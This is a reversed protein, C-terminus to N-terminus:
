PESSFGQRWFYRPVTVPDILLEIVVEERDSGIPTTSDILYDVDEEMLDWDELDISNEYFTFVDDADTRMTFRLFPTGEVITTEAIATPDPAALPDVGAAYDAYNSQGNGNDDADPDLVGNELAFTAYYEYAGVDVTGANIRANGELDFPFSSGFNSGADRLSSGAQLRLDGYDNGSFETWEGDSGPDPVSRFGATPYGTASASADYFWNTGIQPGSGVIEFWQDNPASVISSPRHITNAVFLCNSVENPSMGFVAGGRVAVGASAVDREHLDIVQNFAFTINEFQAIITGDSFIAAGHTEEPKESRESFIGGVAGSGGADGAAGDGNFELNGVVVNSVFASNEIELNLVQSECHIAGGTSRGADPTSGGADGGNGGIGAEGYVGEDGIGGGDGQRGGWGGSGWRGGAGVRSFNGEFLVASLILSSDSQQYIAGGEAAGRNGRAGGDGGRGGNGGDGGNPHFFTGHGGDGGRGGRGGQGGSGADGGEASNELFHSNRAVVTSAFDVFIAGGKASGGDGGTSGTGGDTGATGAGAPTLLGASAGDVGNAGDSGSLGTVGTGGIAGNQIFDCGAIVPSSAECFIAGGAGRGAVTPVPGAALFRGLKGAAFNQYMVCDSIEPNSQRLYIAGGSGDDSASFVRAQNGGFYLSRLEMAGCSSLFLGAGKNQDLHDFGSARGGVIRFGDMVTEPGLGDGTVVHFNRSTGSPPIEGSLETTNTMPNPDRSSLDGGGSPFGGLMTVGDVLVFSDTSTSGPSYVGDTVWIQDGAGASSLASQLDTYADSWTTGNNAGIASADVYHLTGGSIQFQFSDSTTFNGSPDSLILEFTAVGVTDATITFELDGDSGITPLVDFDITGTGSLLNLQYSFGSGGNFGTTDPFYGLQLTSTGDPFQVLATAPVILGLKQYEFAGLDLGFPVERLNGDLDTTIGSIASSDAVNHAPSGVGPRVDDDLTGVINDAGDADAFLPDNSPDTGDFNGSGAGTLDLTEFLSHSADVVFAGSLAGAGNGWALSNILHVAGSAQHIAGGNSGASNGSFSCHLYDPESSSASSYIAGGLGAASNGSFLSNTYQADSTHHSVAGGDSSSANGLFRCRTFIPDANNIYIAGGEGWTGTETGTTHNGLFTVEDFTPAAENLYIAGGIFTACNETFHVRRLTPAGASSCLMGGGRSEFGTGAANANGARVTFGDLLTSSDADEGRLVHYSNEANSGGTEDDGLLDGTLITHNTEPDPNRAAFSLDGGGTPFGGFIEVGCRLVFSASRDGATESGGEDPAYSGEAVWIEDGAQAVAIADQLRTFPVSWNIGSNNNDVASADVFWIRDPAFRGEYLHVIAWNNASNVQSSSSANFTVGGATQGGISNDLLDVTEQYIGDLYWHYLTTGPCGRAEISHFDDASNAELTVITGGSTAIEFSNNVGIRTSFGCRRDAGAASPAAASLGWGCFGTSGSSGNQLARVDARFHWGTAILAEQEAPTLTQFYNPLNTTGSTLRDFIQWARGQTATLGTAVEGVNGSDVFGDVPSVDSGVVVEDASWGQTTPNPDLSGASYIKSVQGSALSSLALAFVAVVFSRYTLMYLM